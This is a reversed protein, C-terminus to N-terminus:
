SEVTILGFLRRYLVMPTVWLLYRFFPIVETEAYSATSFIPLLKISELSPASGGGVFGLFGSSFSHTDSSDDVALNEAGVGRRPNTTPKSDNMIELTVTYQNLRRGGCNGEKFPTSVMLVAQAFVKL